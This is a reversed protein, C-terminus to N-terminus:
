RVLLNFTPSKVFAVAVVPNQALRCLLVRHQFRHCKPQAGGDRHPTEAAAAVIRSGGSYDGGALKAARNTRLANGM